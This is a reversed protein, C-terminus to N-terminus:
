RGNTAPSYADPSGTKVIALQILKCHNNAALL